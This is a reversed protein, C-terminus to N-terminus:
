HIGLDKKKLNNVRVKGTLLKQMLGKKQIIFQEKNKKLLKIEKDINTLVSEIKNIEHNSRPIRVKLKKVDSSNIAPYNSGVTLAHLQSSMYHSYLYHYLYKINFDKKPTLVAFGTSAIKDQHENKALAFAQLNPRVTAMLIDGESVIRKARSPADKFEHEDLKKSIQGNEIDSLSIYEFKYDPTTESNLSKANIKVVDKFRVEQWEGEFEPFRVKGTLLRQMLGKKYRKKAQILKETKSIAEDWTSLIKVIKKREDYDSPLALYLKEVDSNNIAPYSSGVLLQYFQRQFTETFLSQFIYKSNIEDNPTLVAFGTSCIYGDIDDNARAFGKLNPRVTSMLVDNSSVIRRARSPANKYKFNDVPQDIRGENVSGLDIYSIEKEPDTKTGLSTVNIDAIKGIKTIIWDEPHIFGIKNKIFNRRM